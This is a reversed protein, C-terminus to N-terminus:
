AKNKDPSKYFEIFCKYGHLYESETKVSKITWKCRNNSPSLGLEKAFEYLYETAKELELM